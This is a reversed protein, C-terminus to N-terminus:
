TSGTTAVPGRASWRFTPTDFLIIKFATLGAVDPPPIMNYIPTIFHTEGTEVEVKAIGVQSDIPCSDASFDAISCQPLLHPNGIFGAPLHVTTDKADECQM